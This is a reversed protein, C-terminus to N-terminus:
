QQMLCHTTLGSKKGIIVGDVDLIVGKIAM